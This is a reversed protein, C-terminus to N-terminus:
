NAVLQTPARPRVAATSTDCGIPGTAIVYNDIYRETAVPAGGNWYAEILVANIGYDDYAGVWNLNYQGAALQGDLWLEFVGDNSGPSNLAVHVEHCQWQNVAIPITSQKQGLWRQYDNIRQALLNGAADTGSAPDLMLSANAGLWVHGVMAEGWGPTNTGFVMNRTLKAPFETTGPPYKVYFRWYIERFDMQSHSQTSVPSRGFTRYFWGPNTEGVNWAQRISYSGGFAENTSRGLRQGGTNDTFDFYSDAFNGSQPLDENEFSDCWLVDGVPLSITSCESARSIQALTSGVCFVIMAITAAPTRRSNWKM